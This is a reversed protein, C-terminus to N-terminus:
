RKMIYLIIFTIDKPSVIMSEWAINMYVVNCIIQSVQIFSPKNYNTLIYVYGMSTGGM